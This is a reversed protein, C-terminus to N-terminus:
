FNPGDRSNINPTKFEMSVDKNTIEGSGMPPRSGKPYHAEQYEAIVTEDATDLKVQMIWYRLFAWREAEKFINDRQLELLDASATLTPFGRIENPAKKNRFYFLDGVLVGFPDPAIVDFTRPMTAGVSVTVQEAIMPNGPKLKVDSTAFPDILGFDCRGNIENVALPILMEGTNKSDRYIPWFM